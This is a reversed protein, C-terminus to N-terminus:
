RRAKTKIPPNDRNNRRVRNTLPGKFYAPDAAEACRGIPHDRLPQDCILCTLIGNGPYDPDSRKTM